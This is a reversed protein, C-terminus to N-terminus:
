SNYIALTPEKNIGQGTEGDYQGMGVAYNKNM